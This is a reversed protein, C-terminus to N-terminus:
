EFKLDALSQDLKAQDLPIDFRQEGAIDLVEIVIPADGAVEGSAWQEDDSGSKAVLQTQLTVAVRGIAPSAIVAEGNADFRVTQGGFFDEGESNGEHALSVALFKPDTPLHVGKPLILRVRPARHMVIEEDALVHKVSVSCYGESYIYADVGKGSHTLSVKGNAVYAFSRDGTGGSDGFYVYAHPIPEHNADVVTLSIAVASGRLDLPNLRGDRTTEASKVHVGDITQLTSSQSSITLTYDGPLLNRATFKNEDDLTIEERNMSELNAYEDNPENVWIRVANRAITPDLLVQGGIEGTPAVHLAVAKAGKSAAIPRGRLGEKEAVLVFQGDELTGCMTFHGHADSTSRMGWIPEWDSVYDEAPADESSAKRAVTVVAGRVPAESADLVVGEFLAPLPGIAVDGLDREGAVIPGALPVRAGETTTGDDAIRKFILAFPGDQAQRVPVDISFRGNEDSRSHTALWEEEQDSGHLALFSDFVSKALPAANADVFRGRLVAIQEGLRVTLTARRGASGATGTAHQSVDSHKRQVNAILGVGPQVLPFLARGDRIGRQVIGATYEPENEGRNRRQASLTVILEDLCPSGDSQVVLVECESFSRMRLEIPETPWHRPDFEVQIPETTVAAIAAMWTANGDHMSRWIAEAHELTALGDPATTMANVADYFWRGWNRRLAVRVGAVPSGNADAVRIRLPADHAITVVIPSESSPALNAFGWLEGSRATVVGEVHKSPIHARGEADTTTREGHAALQADLSGDAIWDGHESEDGAAATSWSVEANAVTKREAGIVVTVELMEASAPAADATAAKAISDGEQAARKAEAGTAPDLASPLREVSSNAGAIEDHEHASAVSEGHQVFWWAACLVFVAVFLALALVLRASSRPRAAM